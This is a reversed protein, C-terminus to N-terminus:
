LLVFLLLLNGCQTTQHKTFYSFFLLFFIPVGILRDQPDRRSGRSEDSHLYRRGAPGYSQGQHCPAHDQRVQDQACRQRLIGGRSNRNAGPHDQYPKLEKKLEESPTVGSRLIAFAIIVEGKVEDPKGIVAAEAVKPHSVAASEIEANGFRHGAVKLCRRHQGPDM